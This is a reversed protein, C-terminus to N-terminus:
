GKRYLLCRYTKYKEFHASNREGSFYKSSIKDLREKMRWKVLRSIRPYNTDLYHFILDFSPKGVKCTFDDFVDISPSIRPTIDLDNVLIFGQAEVARAFKKWKHGGGILSKGKADTRFFDCILLRGGHNLSQFAKALGEKLRVYQFSESFLVLDYCRTGEFDEFGCEFIQAKGELLAKARETLLPSPSVCDVEYGRDILRKAFTGAGCGVDLVTRVGEPIQSALFEAYNEQARAMTQWNPEVGQDWLGYHLHESGMFYRNFILGIILGVEKSDIKKKNGM